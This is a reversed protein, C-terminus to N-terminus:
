SASSDLAWTAPSLGARVAKIGAVLDDSGTGIGTEFGWIPAVKWSAEASTCVAWGAFDLCAAVVDGSFDSPLGCVGASIMLARPKQSSAGVVGFCAVGACIAAM